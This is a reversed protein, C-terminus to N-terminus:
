CMVDLSVGRQKRGSARGEEKWQRRVSQEYVCFLGSRSM